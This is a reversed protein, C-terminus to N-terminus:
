IYWFNSIRDTLLFWTPISFLMFIPEIPRSSDPLFRPLRLSKFSFEIKRRWMKISQLFPKILRTKFFLINQFKQVVKEASDNSFCNKHYSMYTWSKLHNKFGFKEFFFNLSQWFKKLQKKGWEGFHMLCILFNLKPLGYLSLM